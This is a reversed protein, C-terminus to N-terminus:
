SGPGHAVRLARGTAVTGRRAMVLPRMGFADLLAALRSFGLPMQKELSTRDFDTVLADIRVTWVDLPRLDLRDIRWIGDTLKVAARRVPQVGAAANSFYVTVQKPKLAAGDSARVSIAM